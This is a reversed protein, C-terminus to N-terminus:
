VRPSARITRTVATVYPRLQAADGNTDVIISAARYLRCLAKWTLISDNM